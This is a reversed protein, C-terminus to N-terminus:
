FRKRRKAKRKPLFDTYKAYRISREIDEPRCDKKILFSAIGQDMAKSGVDYDETGTLIITALNPNKFEDKASLIADVTEWGESGPLSLDLFLIDFSEKVLRAIGEQLNNATKYVLEHIPDIKSLYDAFLDRDSELDEILLIKM